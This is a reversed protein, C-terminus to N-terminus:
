PLDRGADAAKATDTGHRAWTTRTLIYEVEGHESGEIPIPWDGFYSRIYTMGLKELVARSATNVTMTNATVEHVGLETFGKAILARAGETAYGHGWADKHLRYGLEVVLASDDVLPRFEFWGLFRGSERDQAAWYGRTGIGPHEHLLRPLVRERITARDAGKGGDIYRMVDSDNDLAALEDLDSEAFPRLVLRPTRLFISM